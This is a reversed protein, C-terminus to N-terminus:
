QIDEFKRVIKDVIGLDVLEQGTVYWDKNRKQNFQKETIKTHTLIYEKMKNLQAKYSKQAEEIESATGQFGASGAHILIESQEFAYRRKGSILLLFGASMAAGTAVTIIPIRSTEMLSCMFNAQSIDGGYSMIWIQIPKLEDEPIDREEMNMQVIVKALDILQYDDELEFDVWFVRQKRLHWYSLEAPDPLRAEALDKPINFEIIDM